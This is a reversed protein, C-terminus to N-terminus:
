RNRQRHFRFAPHAPEVSLLHFFRYRYRATYAATFARECVSQSTQSIRHEARVFDIGPQESIGIEDFLYARRDTDRRQRPAIFDREVSLSHGAPNKGIGRRFFIEVIERM